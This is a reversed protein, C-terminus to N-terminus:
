RNSQRGVFVLAPGLQGPLALDADVLENLFQGRHRQRLKIDFGAEPRTGGATGCLFSQPQEVLQIVVPSVVAFETM